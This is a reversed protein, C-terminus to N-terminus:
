ATPQTSAAMLRQAVDGQIDVVQGNLTSDTSLVIAAMLRAPRDPQAMRGESRMKQMNAAMVGLLEAQASVNNSMATEVMGPYIATITVPTGALEGGIQQTLMDLAAKSVSYAGINNMARRAIGSSVNVIRGWQAALMHPLVRHSLLFPATVNVQVAQVWAAADLTWSAGFPGVIGANNILIDIPGVEHEITDVLALTANVDSLDVSVALAHRGSAEIEAAVQDIEATSRAAVAVDAGLRALELATARGIGRGGGTVLAVKGTLPLNQTNM